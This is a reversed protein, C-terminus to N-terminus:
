YRKSSVIETRYGYKSQICAEVELCDICADLRFAESGPTLRIDAEVMNMSRITLKKQPTALLLIGLYDEYSLGDTYGVADHNGLLAKELSYHWNMRNKMLPVRQGAFLMKTDYVSEMYAWGLIMATELVPELEPLAILTSIGTALIEVENRKEEDSYLYASNVVERIGCIRNAVSRLNDSDSDKGVTLYELQYSLAGNTKPKLYSGMYRSLYQMFYFNEEFTEWGESTELPMNGQSINGASMRNGVLTGSQLVKGSIQEERPFVQKLIGKKRQNDIQKMPNEFKGGLIERIQLEVENMQEEIEGSLMGQSEVIQMWEQFKQLATIGVDDKIANVAQNRFIQGEEDTLFSVKTMKLDEVSLAMFDHYLYDGLFLEERSFNRDMYGKLHTLVKDSGSEPTGYSCDIAFLNYQDLLARHYEAMVSNMGIDMVCKSELRIANARTGEILMLCLSIMVTMILSLYVTLYGARDRNSGSM